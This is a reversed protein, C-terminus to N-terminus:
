KIQESFIERIKNLIKIYAETRFDPYTWEWSEFSKGHYALTIEAYIGKDIYIRHAFDKTTALVFKALNLYGPDINITRTKNISLKEEIRNTLIKIKPLAQPLILKKFSIFGRKLNTGLEEKYYDTLNFELEQSKFDIEGFYKQLTLEAKRLFSEEKYIFGVVLKVPAVQSIKGM